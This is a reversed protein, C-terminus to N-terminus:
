GIYKDDLIYLLWCACVHVYQMYMCSLYYVLRARDNDPVTAKVGTEKVGIQLRTGALAM